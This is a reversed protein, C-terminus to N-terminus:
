SSRGPSPPSPLLPVTVPNTVPEPQSADSQPVQSVSEFRSFSAEISGRSPHVYLQSVTVSHHGAVRQITFADAGSEGLRTLMTHRMSHLVFERSLGLERRVGLHLHDLSTGRYPESGDAPQPTPFVWISKQSHRRELMERVAQTLPLSRRAYASKGERV